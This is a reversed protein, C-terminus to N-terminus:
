FSFPGGQKGAGSGIRGEYILAVAADFWVLRRVVLRTPRRDLLVEVERRKDVRCGSSVTEPNITTYTGDTYRTTQVCGHGVRVENRRGGGGRGGEQGDVSRRAHQKEGAATRSSSSQKKRFAASNVM